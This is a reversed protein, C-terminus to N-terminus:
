KRFPRSVPATRYPCTVTPDRDRYRFTLTGSAALRSLWSWTGWTSGLGTPSIAETLIRQVPSIGHLLNDLDNSHHQNEHPDREGDRRGPRSLIEGREPLEPSGSRPTGPPTRFRDQKRAGCIVDDETLFVPMFHEISLVPMIHGFPWTISTDVFEAVRLILLHRRIRLSNHVM